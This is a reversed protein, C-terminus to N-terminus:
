RLDRIKKRQKKLFDIAKKDTNFSSKYRQTFHIEVLLFGAFLIAICTFGTYTIYQSPVTTLDIM